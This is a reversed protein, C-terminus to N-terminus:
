KKSQKYLYIGAAIVAVIGIAIGAKAGNSLGKKKPDPAPPPTTNVESPGSQGRGSQLSDLVSQIGGGKVFEKAKAGLNSSKKKGTAASWVGQVNAGKQVIISNETIVKM